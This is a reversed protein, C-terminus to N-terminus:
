VLVLNVQAHGGDGGGFVCVYMCVFVLVKGM